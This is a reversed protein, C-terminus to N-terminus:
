SPTDNAGRGTASAYEGQCQGEASQDRVATEAAKARQEHAKTLKMRQFRERATRKGGGKAAPQLGDLEDPM